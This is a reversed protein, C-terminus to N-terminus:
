LYKTLSRMRSIIRSQNKALLYIGVVILTIAALTKLQMLAWYGYPYLVFTAEGAPEPIEGGKEVILTLLGIMSAIGM